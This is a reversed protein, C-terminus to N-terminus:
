AIGALAADLEESGLVGEFKAHVIGQADMVFVWPESPLNWYDPGLSPALHAADPAFDPDTLGTYVEVHVFDVNPYNPATDKVIELLPGCAATVCYAPTSFVLVTARGSALAEDLSLEYFRLDPEPDTTLEEISADSLTPTAVSPAPDGIGPTATRERVEFVSSALASGGDPIAAIEWLGARSIQLETRYLGIAGELIWTWEGAARVPDEEGGSPTIVVDIRQDPGGLRSGDPSVVGVLLRNPGVGVDASAVVTFADDPFAESATGGCAAVCLVAFLAFLGFRLRMM